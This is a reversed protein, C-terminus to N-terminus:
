VTILLDSCETIVGCTCTCVNVLVVHICTSKMVMYSIHDMGNSLITYCM